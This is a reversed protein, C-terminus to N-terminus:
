DHVVDGQPVAGLAPRPFREGAARRGSAALARLVACSGALFDWPSHNGQRRLRDVTRDLAPTDGELVADLVRHLDEGARGRAAARLHAHSIAHTGGRAHAAVAAWLADARAHRGALRLAVLCGALFDDGSPTLGPGLGLLPRAVHAATFPGGGPRAIWAHLQALAPLAARAVPGHARPGPQLLGALGDTPLDAPSRRALGALGRALTADTWRPRRPARWVPAGALVVQLREDLLLADGAVRAGAGVPALTGWRPLADTRRCPINLPGAGIDAHGICIWDDGFRVYCSRAFSAAIVGPRGRRLAADADVGITHAAIRM